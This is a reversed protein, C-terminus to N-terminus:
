RRLARRLGVPLELGCQLFFCHIPVQFARNLIVACNGGALADPPVERRLRKQAHRLRVLLETIWLRADEVALEYAIKGILPLDNFGRSGAERRQSRWNRSGTQREPADM